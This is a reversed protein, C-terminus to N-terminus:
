APEHQEVEMTLVVVDGPRLEDTDVRLLIADGKPDFQANAGTWKEWQKTTWRETDGGPAIPELRVITRADKSLVVEAVQMRATLKMERRRNLSGAGASSPTRQEVPDHIPCPRPEGCIQTVGVPAGSDEAGEPRKTCITRSM